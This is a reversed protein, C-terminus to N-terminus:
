PIIVLNWFALSYGKSNILDYFGVLAWYESVPLVWLFDLGRLWHPSTELTVNTVQKLNFYGAMPNSSAAGIVGLVDINQGYKDVKSFPM